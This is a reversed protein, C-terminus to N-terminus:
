RCAQQNNEFGLTYNYPLLRYRLRIAERALAKTKDERYVPESPVEEQAHPRFVPQFVGYQLWRTYLENDLVSQRLRGPGLAYLRRGAHGDAARDGAAIATRGLRSGDGSWPIIGYRQTGSYGSRMLIFPRETPFDQQYGEAVLRAWQHGYINHVTRRAPPTAHKPRICEPEGLDGWVGTV